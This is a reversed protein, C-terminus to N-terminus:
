IKFIDKIKKELVKAFVYHMEQEFHMKDIDSFEVYDSACLYDIGLEIASERLLPILEKSKLECGFGMTPYYDIVGDKVIPPSILLVRVLDRFSDRENIITKILRQLGLNIVSANAGLREKIDNTGLMVVVLDIPSHSRLCPLIYDLGSLGYTLEDNFVSTRGPLGEEIIRFSSGLSDQLLTTFRNDYRGLTHYDYGYTNSDGFFLINM